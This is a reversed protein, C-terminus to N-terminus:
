RKYLSSDHYMVKAKTVAADCADQLAKKELVWTDEMGRESSTNAAKSALSEIEKLLM